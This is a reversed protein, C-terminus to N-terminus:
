MRAYRARAFSYLGYAVFGAGVAVLLATGAPQERLAALAADLGTASSADGQRAAAAFLLGVVALAVGKAVYGVTGLWRVASGVNGRLDELFKKALGKYVHYGGVVLVAAGIALLLLRGPSSQVLRATVDSTREGGSGGTGMAYPLATAAVALYVVGKGAAKAKSGASKRGDRGYGGAAAEILQWAGLAALGAVAVWLLVQGGPAQAMQTLAGEQDASAGSSGLALRVAIVGILLHLLGSTAYGARALLELFGSNGARRAHGSISNSTVM